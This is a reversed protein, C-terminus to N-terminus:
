IEWPLPLTLQAATPEMLLQLGASLRPPDGQALLQSKEVEDSGPFYIHKSASEVLM